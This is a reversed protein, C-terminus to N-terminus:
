GASSAQALRVKSADPTSRPEATGGIDLRFEDAPDQGASRAM